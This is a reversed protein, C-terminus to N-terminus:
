SPQDLHNIMEEIELRKLNEDDIYFELKPFKRIILKKSLHKQLRGKKKDLMEKVSGRFKEPWISLGVRAKTLAKDVDVKTITAMTGPPFELERQFLWSLEQSILESLRETRLTM